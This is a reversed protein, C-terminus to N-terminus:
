YAEGHELEMDYADGRTGCGTLMCNGHNRLLQPKKREKKEAGRRVM